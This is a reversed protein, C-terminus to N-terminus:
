LPGSHVEMEAEVMGEQPPLPIANSIQFPYKIQIFMGQEIITEGM